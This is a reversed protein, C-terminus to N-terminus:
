PNEMKSKTIEVLIRSAVFKMLFQPVKDEIVILASLICKPTAMPKTLGGTAFFSLISIYKVRVEVTVDMLNQLNKIQKKNGFLARSVGQDGEFALKKEIAIRKLDVKWSTDEHHFLKYIGFSFFSVFPEVIIIKGDTRLVRLSENIVLYPANTHHLVDIAIVNSFESNKFPLHEADIDGKVANGEWSLIDTKLIEFDKLFYGSIGAGAGIELIKKHSNLKKGILKYLWTLYTINPNKISNKKQIELSVRYDFV